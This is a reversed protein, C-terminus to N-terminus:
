QLKDQCISICVYTYMNTGACSFSRQGKTRKRCLFVNDVYRIIVYTHTHIYNYM